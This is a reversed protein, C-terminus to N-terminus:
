RPPPRRNDVFPLERFLANVADGFLAKPHEGCYAKLTAKQDVPDHLVDFFHAPEAAMLDQNLGTMFGQAWAYFLAGKEPAERLTALYQECLTSGLNGNGPDASWGPSVGALVLVVGAIALIKQPAPM